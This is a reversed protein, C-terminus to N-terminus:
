DDARLAWGRAKSCEDLLEFAPLFLCRPADGVRGKWKIPSGLKFPTLAHLLERGNPRSLNVATGVPIPPQERAIRFGTPDEDPM